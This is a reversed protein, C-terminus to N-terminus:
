PRPAAFHGAAIQLRRPCKWGVIRRTIRFARGGLPAFRPSGLSRARLEAHAVLDPGAPGAAVRLLHEATLTAPLRAAVQRDFRHETREWVLDTLRRSRTLRAALRLLGGWPLTAVNAAPIETVERRRFQAAGDRGALRGLATLLRRHGRAPDDRLTTVFHDLQGAEHLARAAHQVLPAVSPHFILVSM